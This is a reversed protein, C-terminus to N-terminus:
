SARGTADTEEPCHPGETEPLLPDRCYPCASIEELSWEAGDLFAPVDEQMLWVRQADDTLESLGWGRDGIIKEVRVRWYTM